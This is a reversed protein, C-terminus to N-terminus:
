IGRKCWCLVEVEYLRLKDGDFSVVSVMKTNTRSRIVIHLFLLHVKCCEYSFVTRRKWCESYMERM